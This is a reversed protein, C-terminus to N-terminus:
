RFHDTKDYHHVDPERKAQPVNLIQQELSPDVNTMLGHPKPPIPEARHERGVDFAIPDAPYLAVSLPAPVEILHKHLDVSLRMVKPTRDVM